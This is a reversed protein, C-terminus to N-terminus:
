LRWCDAVLLLENLGDFRRADLGTLARVREIRAYITNPHKKLARAAEQVNLDAAALARM